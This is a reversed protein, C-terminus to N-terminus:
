VGFHAPDISLTNGEGEINDVEISEFAIIKGHAFLTEIYVKRAIIEGGLMKKIRVIDGEITGGELVDINAEKARLDGGQLESNAVGSVDM